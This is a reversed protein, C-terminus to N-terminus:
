TSTINVRNKESFLINKRFYNENIWFEDLGYRKEDSVFGQSRLINRCEEIMNKGDDGWATVEICIIYVPISWDMTKLVELESGEVDLSWFDIYKIQAEHLIDSLKRCKIKTVDNRNLKWADIWNKESQNKQTNELLKLPGGVGTGDGIYEVYEEDTGVLCNFNKCNPRNKILENFSNKGPEILVGTFNLYKELAYTNSLYIGDCAGLELFVGHCNKVNIFNNLLLQDTMYGNVLQSYLQVSM